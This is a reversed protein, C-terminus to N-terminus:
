KGGVGYEDNSCTCKNKFSSTIFACNSTHGLFLRERSSAKLEHKNLGANLWRGLYAYIEGVEKRSLAVYPRVICVGLENNVSNDILMTGNAFKNISM